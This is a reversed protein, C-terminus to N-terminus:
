MKSLTSSLQDPSDTSPCEEVQRYGITLLLSSHPHGFSLCNLLENESLQANM